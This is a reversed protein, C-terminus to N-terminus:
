SILPASPKVFFLQVRVALLDTCLVHTICIHDFLHDCVSQGIHAAANREQTIHSLTVRPNDFTENSPHMINHSAKVVMEECRFSSECVVLPPCHHPCKAVEDARDAVCVPFLYETDRVVSCSDRQPIPFRQRSHFIRKVLRSSLPIIFALYAVSNEPLIEIVTDHFHHLILYGSFDTLM